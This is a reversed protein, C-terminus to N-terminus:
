VLGHSAGVVLQFSRAFGDAAMRALYPDIGEYTCLLVLGGPYEFLFENDLSLPIQLYACLEADGGRPMKVPFILKVEQRVPVSAGFGCGCWCWASGARLHIWDVAVGCYPCNTIAM